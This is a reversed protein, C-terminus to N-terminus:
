QFHWCFFKVEFFDKNKYKAIELNDNQRLMMLCNHFSIGPKTCVFSIATCRIICRTRNVEEFNMNTRTTMNDFFQIERKLCRLIHAVEFNRKPLLLMCVKNLPKYLYITAALRSFLNHWFALTTFLIFMWKKETWKAAALFNNHDGNAFECMSHLSTSHDYAHIYIKVDYPSVNISHTAQTICLAICIHTPIQLYKHIPDAWGVRQRDIGNWVSPQM